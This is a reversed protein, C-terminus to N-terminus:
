PKEIQDLEADLAAKHATVFAKLTVVAAQANETYPTAIIIAAAEDPRGMLKNLALELKARYPSIGDKAHIRHGQWVLIRQGGSQAMLGSEAM